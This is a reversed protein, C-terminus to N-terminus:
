LIDSMHVDHAAFGARDFSAAMEMQGNVGQERLIAVKPRAGRAIFPAAIDDAPDFTLRANLGPDSEDLLRDYEQEAAVPNDRLRQIHHTVSSWARHLASRKEAFVPK